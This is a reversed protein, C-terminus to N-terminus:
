GGDTHRRYGPCMVATLFFYVVPTQMDISVNQHRYNICVLLISASRYLHSLYIANFHQGTYKGAELTQVVKAFSLPGIHVDSKVAVQVKYHRNPRLNRIVYGLVTDMVDITKDIESSSQNYHIKYGFIGSGKYHPPQWTVQISTPSLM